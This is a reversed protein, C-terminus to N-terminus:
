REAWLVRWQPLAQDLFRIFEALKEAWRELAEAAERLFAGFARLIALLRELFNSRAKLAIDALHQGLIHGLFFPQQAPVGIMARMIM